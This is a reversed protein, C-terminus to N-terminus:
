QPQYAYRDDRRDYNSMYLALLLCCCCMLVFLAIALVWGSNKYNDDDDDYDDDDNTQGTGPSRGFDDDDDDPQYCDEDDGWCDDVQCTGEVCTSGPECVIQQGGDCQFTLPNCFTPHIESHVVCPDDHVCVGHLPVHACGNPDLMFSPVGLPMCHNVSCQTNEASSCRDHVPIEVCQTAECRGNMACPIDTDCHDGDAKPVVVCGTMDVANAIDCM